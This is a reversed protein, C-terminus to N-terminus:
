KLLGLLRDPSILPVPSNSQLFKDDRTVIYDVGAKKACVAVLADEFDNMPMALADSCDAETLPIVNVVSV